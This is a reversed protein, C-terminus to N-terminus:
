RRAGPVHESFTGQTLSLLALNIFQCDIFWDIFGLLLMFVTYEAPAMTAESDVSGIQGFCLSVVVEPCTAHKREGGVRKAFLNMGHNGHGRLRWRQFGPQASATPRGAFLLDYRGPQSTM